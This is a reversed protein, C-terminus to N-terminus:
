QLFGGTGIVAALGVDQYVGIVVSTYRVKPQCNNNLFGSATFQLARGPPHCRFQHVGLSKPKGSLRQFLKGGLTRIDIRNPHRNKLCTSAESNM